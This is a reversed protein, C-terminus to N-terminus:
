GETFLKCVKEATVKGIGEITTLDEAKIEDAIRKFSFGYMKAISEAKDYGISPIQHIMATLINENTISYSLMKFEDPNFKGEKIHKCIISFCMYVFQRPNEVFALKINNKVMLSTMKGIIANEHISSKTGFPNGEIIVYKHEFNLCMKASQARLRGDMISAVFDGAEKREIVIDGCVIDGVELFTKEYPIGKEASLIDFADFMEQNSERSDVKILM